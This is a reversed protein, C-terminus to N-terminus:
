REFFDVITHANKDTIGKVAILEELDADKIRDVSGFHALLANRKAPGIGPIEDLVSTLMGKSRLGRHYDIAFRHVEEQITGIYKYLMPKGKLEIEEYDDAKRYILARTRHADDKAMGALPIESKMADLVTHAASVHGTGGDILILDPMEEFGRDGELGRKMRRYLVEQMSGYDNPGEITRVRFRRYGSKDPRSGEFVVMAGVTDVGNTNSIDYAEIRYNNKRGAIDPKAEGPKECVGMECLLNEVASRVAEEREKKNEQRETVNKRMEQADKQALELLARKEGKQPRLIRVRRKWLSSLYEETLKGEKLTEEILIEAPGSIQGGYHQRIFEGVADIHSEANSMAYTERGTLKGDRVFFIIVSAENKIEDSGGWLVVDIDEKARLVVRQKEHLSGAAALYDRYSAAEEYLMNTSAENMKKTLYAEITRDKGKLFEMASNIRRRYMERDVNGTCIGDCEDIHYNLCPKFNQPFSIASCRKLKYVRNLLDVMTNVAGADSYPGFYKEGEKGTIRTKMLRPYEEGTTVKIYPYSKDDRLLINYKPRHKKILNCELIFAEMETGCTIYEFEAIHGVMARVKADMNKSSGFYQRVRKRLSVAKGVYIIKGTKDKHIYVGPSDPLQKLNKEIDFM